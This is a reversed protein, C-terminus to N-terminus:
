LNVPNVIDLYLSTVGLLVLGMVVAYTVPLLKAVDAHYRRGRRSRLREYIAVAAHGGDLPPLPVMNFIGIFLNIQFFLLLLVYVGSSEWLDAGMRVVGYISVLRNDEGERPPAPNDSSNDRADTSANNVNDAFDGLGQPSFFSVLASMSEGTFRVMEGPARALAPGLGIPSDDYVGSSGVGLFPSGPTGGQIDAPREGLTAQLTRREGDRDVTLDLSDGVDYGAIVESLEKGIGRVPRGDVAVIEDGAKLGAASAASDPTVQNVEWAQADVDGTLSGGPVGVLGLAVVLLVFAQLLHSISGASVVLLRKPFSQQRYTRPEDAPEAEDLNNMGVIRVYAGAPIVKLGYETEGRHFSWIRPGFGIFFETVKMGAWKATVFHGLEHLFVMLVIGGIIVPYTWGARVGVLLILGALVALRLVGTGTSPPEEGAAHTTAPRGGVVPPWGPGIDQGADVERGAGPGVDHPAGDRASGAAGPAGDGGHIETM